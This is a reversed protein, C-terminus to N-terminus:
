SAIASKLETWKSFYFQASEIALEAMGQSVTVESIHYDAENRAERLQRLNYGLVKISMSDYPELKHESPTTMYGILNKHHNSSYNPVSQLSALSEHFMSYYARSIACRYGIEDGKLFLYKASDLFDSSCTSM